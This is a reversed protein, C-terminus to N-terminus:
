SGPKPQPSTTGSLQPTTSFYVPLTYIRKILGFYRTKLVFKMARPLQNYRDLGKTSNIITDTPWNSVWQGKSTLFSFQISDIGKMLTQTVPTSDQARDLVKWYQRVLKDGDLRYDVRQLNSRHEQLPNRWGARTLQIVYRPDQTSLAYERDGYGNRISRPVIQSIDRSLFLVTHQLAELRESAHQTTQEARITGNLLEWVGLGILATIGIAVLVELLTFGRNVFSTNM